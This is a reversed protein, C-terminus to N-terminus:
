ATHPATNGNQENLESWRPYAGAPYPMLHALAPGRSAGRRDAGAAYVAVPEKADAEGPDAARWVPDSDRYRWLVHAAIDGPIVVTDYLWFRPRGLYLSWGLPEAVPRGPSAKLWGVRSIEITRVRRGTDPPQPRTLLFMNSGNCEYRTGDSLHVEEACPPAAVRCPTFGAFGTRRSEGLTATSDEWAQQNSTSTM